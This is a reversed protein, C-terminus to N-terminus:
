DDSFDHTDTVDYGCDSCVAWLWKATGSQGNNAHTGAYDFSESGTKVNEHDCDLEEKCDYCRVMGLPEGNHIMKKTRKHACDVTAWDFGTEM